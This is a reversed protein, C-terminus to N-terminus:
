AKVEEITDDKCLRFVSHTASINERISYDGPACIVLKVDLLKTGSTALTGEIEAVYFVVNGQSSHNFPLIMIEKYAIKYRTGCEINPGIIANTDPDIGILLNPNDQPTVRLWKLHNRGKERNRFDAYAIMKEPTFVREEEM